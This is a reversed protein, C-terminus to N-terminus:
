PYKNCKENVIKVSLVHSFKFFFIFLFFYIFLFFVLGIPVLTMGVMLKTQM